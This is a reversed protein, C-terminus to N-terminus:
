LLLVTKKIFIYIANACVLFETHNQIFSHILANKWSGITKKYETVKMNERDFSKVYLM